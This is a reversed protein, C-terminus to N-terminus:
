SAEIIIHEKNPETSYATYLKFDFYDFIKQVRHKMKLDLEDINKSLQKQSSYNFDGKFNTSSAKKFKVQNLNKNYNDLGLSILIRKTEKKPNLLLDSYFVICVKSPDM